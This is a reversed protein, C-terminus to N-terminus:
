CNRPCRCNQVVFAELALEWNPSHQRLQGAIKQGLEVQNAAM